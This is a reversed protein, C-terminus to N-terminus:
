HLVKKKGTAHGEEIKPALFLQCSGSPTSVRITEFESPSRILNAFRSVKRIWKNNLPTKQPTTTCVSYLTVYILWIKLLKLMILAYVLTEAACM